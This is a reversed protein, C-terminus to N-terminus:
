WMVGVQQQRSQSDGVDVTEPEPNNGHRYRRSTMSQDAVIGSDNSDPSYVDRIRPMM